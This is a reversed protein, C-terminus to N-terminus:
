LNDVFYCMAYKKVYDMDKTKWKNMHDRGLVLIRNKGSDLYNKVVASLLKSAVPPGKIKPISYAVNLGDIVIDFPAYNDIFKLFDAIEKPNSHMFVNKNIMADNFFADKLKKTDDPTLSYHTLNRKCSPCKGSYLLDHVLYIM